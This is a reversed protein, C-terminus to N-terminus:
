SIASGILQQPNTDEAKDVLATEKIENVIIYKCKELPLSLLKKEFPSVNFCINLGKEYGKNILYEM